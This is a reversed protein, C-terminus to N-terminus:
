KLIKSIKISKFTADRLSPLLYTDFAAYPVSVCGLLFRFSKTKEFFEDEERKIKFYETAFNISNDDKFEDLLNRLKESRKRMGMVKNFSVENANVKESIDPCGEIQVINRYNVTNNNRLKSSINAEFLAETSKSGWLNECSNDKASIISIYSRMISPIFTSGFVAKNYEINNNEYNPLDIYYSNDVCNVEYNLNQFYELDIHYPKNAKLIAYIVENNNINHSIFRNMEEININDYDTIKLNDLIFNKLIKIKKKNRVTKELAEVIDKEIDVKDKYDELVLRYIKNKENKLEVLKFPVFDYNFSLNGERILNKLNREGCGTILKEISSNPNNINIVINESIILSESLLGIDIETDKINKLNFINYTDFYTKNSM